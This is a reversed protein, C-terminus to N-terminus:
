HAATRKRTEGRGRHETHAHTHTNHQTHTHTHTHTTHTHTHTHYSTHAPPYPSLTAPTPNVAVQERTATSRRPCGTVTLGELPVTHHSEREREREREGSGCRFTIRQCSWRATCSAASILERRWGTRRQTPPARDGSICGGFSSQSM